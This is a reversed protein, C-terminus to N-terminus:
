EVILVQLETLYEEEVVTYRNDIHYFEYITDAIELNNDKAYIIFENLYEELKKYSGRYIYSLYKGKPLFEEFNDNDDDVLMFVSKYKGIIGKDVDKLSMSAGIKHNEFQHLKFNNEKQLFRISLDLEEDLSVDTELEVANRSSIEKIKFEGISINKFNNLSEIQSIILNQRNKLEIIEGEIIKNQEQLLSYTNDLSLEVLYEKIQDLSFNLKRLDKIITLKYMDTLNYYRYNNEGRKPNLLGIKEYYRLSDIGIDFLNSIEKIKYYKKM